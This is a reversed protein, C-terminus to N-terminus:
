HILHMRFGIEVAAATNTVRLRSLIDQRHRSVTHVSINLKDAIQKSGVGKALMSLIEVQRKSLLLNDYQLYQDSDVAKGTRTNTMCGEVLGHALPFPVYTCLGLWLSGNTNCIIYRITHLVSLTTGDPQCLHILCFANYDPREEVPISQLFHYFRLELIHRELLEDAPITNFIESEFASSSNETYDPLGLAHGFKGSYIYCVDQQLDSIVAIGNTAQAYAYAYEKANELSEDKQADDVFQQGTLLTKLRLEHEKM